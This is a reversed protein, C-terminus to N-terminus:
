WILLILILLYKSILNNIISGDIVVFPTYQYCKSTNYNGTEFDLKIFWNFNLNSLTAVYVFDEDESYTYLMDMTTTSITFNAQWLTNMNEDSKLVISHLNYM